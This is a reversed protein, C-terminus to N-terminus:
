DWHWWHSCKDGCREKRRADAQHQLNILLRFVREQENLPLHVIKPLQESIRGSLALVCPTANRSLKSNSIAPEIDTQVAGSQVIMSAIIELVHLRDVEELQVFQQTGSELTEFRHVLRNLWIDWELLQDASTM